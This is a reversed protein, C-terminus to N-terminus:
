ILYIFILRNFLFVYKELINFLSILTVLEYFYIILSKYSSRLMLSTCM